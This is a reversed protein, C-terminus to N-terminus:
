AEGNPAGAVMALEGATELAILFALVTEASIEPADDSAALAACWAPHEPAHPRHQVLAQLSALTLEMNVPRGLLLWAREALASFVQVDSRHEQPVCEPLTRLLELDNM